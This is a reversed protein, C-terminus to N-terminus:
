EPPVEDEPAADPDADADPDAIGAEQREKRRKLADENVLRQHERIMPIMQENTRNLKEIFDRSLGKGQHVTNYLDDFVEAFRADVSDSEPREQTRNKPNVAAAAAEVDGEGLWDLTKRIVAEPDALLGDYSQVHVPYRRIAIDRMLTFNEGWWELAGPMRVPTPSDPNKKQREEDEIGWLRNISSEYERWERMTAVVRGIYARDSRALGPIFVKVVHKEVQEPFFYAGTRPHPNTRYYIGHRLMSEYFGSPNADKLTRKWEGPFKEGFPSFGAAILIQMWM